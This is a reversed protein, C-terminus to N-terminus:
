RIMTDLVPNKESKGNDRIEILEHLIEEAAIQEDPSLVTSMDSKKESDNTEPGVLMPKDQGTSHQNHSCFPIEVIKPKTTKKAKKKRKLTEVKVSPSKSKSIEKKNDM